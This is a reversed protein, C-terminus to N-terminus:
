EWSRRRGRGPKRGSPVCHVADAVAEGAREMLEIGATGAAIALRDAEFMEASSLLEIM